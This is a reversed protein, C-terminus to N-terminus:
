RFLEKGAKLALEPACDFMLNTGVGQRQLFPIKWIRGLSKGCFDRIKLRDQGSGSIPRRESLGALASKQPRGSTL